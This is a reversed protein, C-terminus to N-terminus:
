LSQEPGWGREASGNWLKKLYALDDAVEALPFRDLFVVGAECGNVWITLAEYVIQDRMNILHLRPPLLRPELFSIGAGIETINRVTCRFSYAGYAYTIVGSLNVRRRPQKRGKPAVALGILSKM